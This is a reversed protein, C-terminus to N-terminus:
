IPPIPLLRSYFLASNESVRMLTIARRLAGRPVFTQENESLQILNTDDYGGRKDRKNAM